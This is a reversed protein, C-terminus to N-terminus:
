KAGKTRKLLEEVAIRAMTALSVDRRAAELRLERHLDEPLDLRVPRLAGKMMADM